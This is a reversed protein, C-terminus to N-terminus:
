PTPAKWLGPIPGTYARTDKTLLEAQLTEVVNASNPFFAQAVSLWFDNMHRSGAMFNQYQGGVFGLKKGGLILAPAPGRTSCSEAIDTIFPMVTYDLLSNGFADRANKFEVLADATKQNFWTHVATLFEYVSAEVGPAPPPGNTTRPSTVKHSLPNHMYAGEPDEPYLGQFAVHNTGPAWQFTAVRILDCQFATRIVSLHLKGTQELMPDDAQLAKPNGYDFKSGSKGHIEPDPALFPVCAPIQTSLEQELKRIADEHADIKVRQSAPAVGRLRGLERLASDLVSKKQLLALRVQESTGGPFFGKFLDAYLAAPVLTPMLPKAEKIIGIGHAEVDQTEYSYSLCQASIENSDVRADCIANAFGKGPRQLAAVNKLLIQDFSPGSAIADDAEGGNVRTGATGVGTTTIVTGAESGGGHIPRIAAPTLGYLVIMDERLGATEFPKLIRSIEFDSGPISPLFHHRITGLPWHALLFRPPSSDGQAAAELNRLLIKLGVAGGLGSFLARRAIRYSSM